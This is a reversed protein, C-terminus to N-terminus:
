RGLDITSSCHCQRECTHDLEERRASRQDMARQQARQESAAVRRIIRKCPGNYDGRGLATVRGQPPGDQWFTPPVEVVDGVQLTLDTEYTLGEVQVYNM